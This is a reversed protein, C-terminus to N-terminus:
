FGLNDSGTVTACDLDPIAGTSTEASNNSGIVTCENIVTSGSFILLNGSGTLYLNTLDTTITITNDSGTITLDTAVDVTDTAGTSTISQSDGITTNVGSGGTTTNIGSDGITTNIESDGSSGGCATLASLLAFIFVAKMTLDKNILQTTLYEDYSFWMEAM